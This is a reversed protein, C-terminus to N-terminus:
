IIKHLMFIDNDFEDTLGGLLVCRFLWRKTNQMTQTNMLKYVWDEATM